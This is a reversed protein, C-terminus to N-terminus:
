TLEKAKAFHQTFGTKGHQMPELFKEDGTVAFGRLGTEMDVLSKLVGDVERLVEFTHKDWRNAESLKEFSSYSIGVVGLLIAIMAGFALYLKKGIGLDQLM